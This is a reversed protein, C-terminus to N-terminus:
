LDAAASITHCLELGSLKSKGTHIVHAEQHLFEHGRLVWRFMERTLDASSVGGLRGDRVEDLSISLPEHVLCVHTGHSGEVEFAELLKRVRDRGQHDSLLSNIHEYIPLERHIKSCNIYVKLAVYKNQARQDRCLWVISASSYGLKGITQYHNNFIEGIRVPYYHEAKYGRITEAEILFKPDIREYLPTTTAMIGFRDNTFSLHRRFCHNIKLTRRSIVLRSRLITYPRLFCEM